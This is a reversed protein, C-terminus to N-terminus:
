CCKICLTTTVDIVSKSLYFIIKEKSICDNAQLLLFQKYVSKRKIRVIGEQEQM